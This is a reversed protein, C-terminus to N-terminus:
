SSRLRRARGALLRLQGQQGRRQTVSCTGSWCSCCSRQARKTWPRRGPSNRTVVLLLPTLTVCAGRMLTTPAEHSSTASGFPRRGRAKNAITVSAGRDLLIQACQAHGLGIAFHLSTNGHQPHSALHIRGAPLFSPSLYALERFKRNCAGCALCSPPESLLPAPAPSGRACTTWPMRRHGNWSRGSAAPTAGGPQPTSRRRVLSCPPLRLCRLVPRRTM